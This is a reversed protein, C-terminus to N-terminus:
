KWNKIKWGEACKTHWWMETGRKTKSYDLEDADMPDLKEGCIACTVGYESNDEILGQLRNKLRRDLM